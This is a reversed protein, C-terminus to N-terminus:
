KNGIGDGQAPLLKANKLKRFDEYGMDKHNPNARLWARYISYKINWERQKRFENRDRLITDQCFFMCFLALAISGFFIFYFVRHDGNSM